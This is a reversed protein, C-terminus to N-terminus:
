DDFDVPIISAYAVKLDPECWVTLGIEHCDYATQVSGNEYDVEIDKKFQHNPFFTRVKDLSQGILNVAEYFFYRDSTISVIRENEFYVTIDEEFSEYAAWAVAADEILQNRQLKYNNLVDTIKRGFTFGGLGVNPTFILKENEIKTDKLVM